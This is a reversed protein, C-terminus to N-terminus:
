ARRLETVFQARVNFFFFSLFFSFFFPSHSFAWIPGLIPVDRVFGKHFCKYDIM